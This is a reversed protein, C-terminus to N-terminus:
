YVPAQPAAPLKAAPRPQPGREILDIDHGEAPVEVGVERGGLEGVEAQGAAVEEVHEPGM